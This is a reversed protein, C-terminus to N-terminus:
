ARLSEHPSQGFTERYLVAFRGTHMFGWRAAIQAVTAERRQAALLDRHALDLRVKRLYQLPTCELHRRFMYQVARPTVHVARAIDALAIDNAANSEIYALARRLLAPGSDTRDYSRPEPVITNPFASLTVTALLRSCHGLVLPTAANDHALVCDKVYSVTDTWLRAAAEDAPRFSSFRIVPAEGDTTAGAVDAVLDADLLMTTSNVDVFQASYPLDPQALVTVEGEVAEGSLGGCQSSVKGDHTWVTVIKNLPDPEAHLEGPLALDDVAVPGIDVRAHTLSASHPGTEELRMPVGYASDLFNAIEAADFLEVRSRVPPHVKALGIKVIIV